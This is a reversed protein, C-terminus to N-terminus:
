AASMADNFLSLFVNCLANWCIENGVTKLGVGVFSHAHSVLLSKAHAYCVKSLVLILFKAQNEAMM